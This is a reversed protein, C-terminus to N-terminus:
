RWCNELRYSEIQRVGCSIYRPVSLSFLLTNVRRLLQSQISADIVGERPLDINNQTHVTFTSHHSACQYSPGLGEWEWTLGCWNTTGFSGTFRAM